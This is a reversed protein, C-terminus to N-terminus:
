FVFRRENIWKSSSAKIDGTLTSVSVTPHLGILIHTHDPNCYIALPKSRNNTIIGCMYKELEDRFKEKILNERGHLTFIIQVYMQTYTNAM